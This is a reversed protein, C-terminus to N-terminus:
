LTSVLLFVKQELRYSTFNVLAGMIEKKKTFYILAIIPAPLVISLIVQSIVLTQTPDNGMAVIIVTPLMTFKKPHIKEIQIYDHLKL